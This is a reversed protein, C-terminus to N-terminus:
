ATGSARKAPEANERSSDGRMMDAREDVHLRAHSADRQPQQRELNRQVDEKETAADSERIRRQDRRVTSAHPLRAHQLDM